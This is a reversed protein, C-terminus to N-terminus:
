DPIGTNLEAIKRLIKNVQEVKNGLKEKNKVIQGRIAAITDVYYDLRRRVKQRRELIDHKLEVMEEKNLLAGANNIWMKPETINNKVMLNVLQRNYYDLDDNTKKFKEKERVADMYLEYMNNLEFSNNVHFRECTYDVANKSNVYKIKERNELSIAHNINVDCQKIENNCEQYKIVIYASILAAFFGAILMWLLTSYDMVISVIVCVACVVAFSVFVAISLVRLHSQEIECDERAIQWEVKEGEIYKMNKNLADVRNENYKLRKIVRPIEAEFQEMQTFQSDTLKSETKMLEARALNLRAVNSAIERMRSEEDDVLQEIRLCDNFFYTLRMYEQREDEFEQAADVLQECLEVVDSSNNEIEKELKVYRKQEQARSETKKKRKFFKSFLM